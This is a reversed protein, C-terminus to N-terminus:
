ALADLRLLGPTTEGIAALRRQTQPADGDTALAAHRLTQGPSRREADHQGNRQGDASAGFQNPGQNGGPADQALASGRTPQPGEIDIREVSLGRAELAARLETSSKELLSRASESEARLRASVAEGDVHLDVTVLGLHDPALRLTVKGDGHRLAAALGRVVQKAGDPEDEFKLVPLKAKELRSLLEATKRPSAPAGAVADGPKISSVSGAGGDTKPSTAVAKSVATGGLTALEPAGAGNIAAGPSASPKRGSDTGPDSATHEQKPEPVSPTAARERDLRVDRATPRSQTPEDHQADQDARQRPQLSQAQAEAAAQTAEATQALDSSEHGSDGRPSTSVDDGQEEADQEAKAEARTSTPVTQAPATNAQMIQGAPLIASLGARRMWGAGVADLVDDFSAAPAPSEASIPERSSTSAHDVAQIPM